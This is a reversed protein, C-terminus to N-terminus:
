YKKMGDRAGSSYDLIVGTRKYVALILGTLEPTISGYNFPVFIIDGPNLIQPKEFLAFEWRKKIKNWVIFRTNIKEIKGSVRIVYLFGRVASNRLGGAEGLYFGYTRNKESSYKGPNKVAGEMFVYKPRPRFVIVDGNKLRIDGETNLLLIPNRAHIIIRGTSRLGAFQRNIKDKIYGSLGELNLLERRIGILEVKRDIKLRERFLATDKLYAEPGPPWIEQLLDSLRSGDTLRYKGPRSVLGKVKVYIYAEATNLGAFYVFASIIIFAFILRRCARTRREYDKKKLM